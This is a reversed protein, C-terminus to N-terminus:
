CAVATGMPKPNIAFTDPLLCNEEDEDPYIIM